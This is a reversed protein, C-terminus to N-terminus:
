FEKFNPQPKIVIPFYNYNIPDHANNEKYYHASIFQECYEWSLANLITDSSYTQNLRTYHLEHLAQQIQMVIYTATGGSVCMEASYSPSTECSFESDSREALDSQHNERFCTKSCSASSWVFPLAARFAASSANGSCQPLWGIVAWVFM